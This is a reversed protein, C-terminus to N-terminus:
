NSMEVCVFLQPDAFHPRHKRVEIIFIDKGYRVNTTIHRQTVNIVGHIQKTYYCPYQIALGQFNRWTSSM